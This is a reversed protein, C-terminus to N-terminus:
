GVSRPVIAGIAGGLGFGMGPIYPVSTPSTRRRTINQRIAEYEEPSRRIPRAGAYNGGTMQPQMYGTASGLQGYFNGQMQQALMGAYAPNVGQPVYPIQQQRPRSTHNRAAETRGRRYAEAEGLKESLALLASNDPARDTRRETFANADRTLDMDYGIRRASKAESLAQQTLALDRANRAEFASGISSDTLGRAALGSKINALSERANEKNLESQVNGWNDVEGMTRNYLADQSGRVEQYRFENAANAADQQRKVDAAMKEIYSRVSEGRSSAPAAGGASLTSAKSKASNKPTKATWGKAKMFAQVEAPTPEVGYQTTFTGPRNSNTKPRGGATYSRAPFYGRQPNDSDVGKIHRLEMLAREYLQQQTAM